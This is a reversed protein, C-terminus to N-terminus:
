KKQRYLTHGLYLNAHVNSPDLSILERYDHEATAYDKALFEKNPRDTLKVFADPTKTQSTAAHGALAFCVCVALRAVRGPAATLSVSQHDHM